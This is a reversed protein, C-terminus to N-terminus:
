AGGPITRQRMANIRQLQTNLVQKRREEAAQEEQQQDDLYRMIVLLILIMVQSKQRMALGLNGSLQALAFSVGLFTILATKTIGDSRFLFSIFSPRLMKLFLFLYLINEFSVIIGLANPADVFMPRFWFTFLKMPFSYNSIDIGSTAKSLERARKSLTTSEELLNEDDIGTLALVEERIFYFGALSILVVSTRVWFGLRVGSFLFGIASAILVIFLIHPRVHYIVLAGLITWAWRHNFRSLGYFLMGFGFFIVSGKGISSSWFHLNPMFVAITLLDYGFIKPRTQLTETLTIFFFIFGVLGVWAFFLMCAEFSFGLFSALPFTLFEIFQTSVGYYNFWDPGNIGTNAKFFYFHSDSRNFLAYGYYALALLLHWFPLWFLVKRDSESVSVSLNGVWYWTIFALVVALLILSLM